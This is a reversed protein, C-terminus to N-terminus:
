TTYLVIWIKTWVYRYHQQTPFGLSTWRGTMQPSYTPSTPSTTRQPWPARKWGREWLSVPTLERLAVMSAVRASEEFNPLDRSPLNGIGLATFYSCSIHLLSWQWTCILLMGAHDEDDGQNFIAAVEQDIDNINLLIDPLCGRVPASEPM